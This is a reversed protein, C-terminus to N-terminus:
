YLRFYAFVTVNNDDAARTDACFPSTPNYIRAISLRVEAWLERM